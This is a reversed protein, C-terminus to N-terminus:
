YYLATFIHVAALGFMTGTTVIHFTLWGRMARQLLLEANMKNVRLAYETVRQYAPREGPKLRGLAAAREKQFAPLEQALTSRRRYFRLMRKWSGADKMLHQHVLERFEPSGASALELMGQLCQARVALLDEMIAPSEEMATLLRPLKRSFFWGMLGSAITLSFFALLWASLPGGARFASHYLIAFAAVIGLYIHGTLWVSMKGVGQYALRKRASLGAVLVSLSIGIWGLALVLGRYRNPSPQRHAAIYWWSLAVVALLAIVQWIREAAKAQRRSSSVRAGTVLSKAPSM